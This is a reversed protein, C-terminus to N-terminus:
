MLVVLCLVIQRRKWVNECERFNVAKTSHMFCVFPTSKSINQVSMELASLFCSSAM